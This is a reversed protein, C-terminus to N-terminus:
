ASNDHKNHKFVLAKSSGFNFLLGAISGSAVALVPVREFLSSGIVLVSFVGNNVAGGFANAGLYSFWEKFKNPSKKHCFAFRRNISWTVTVAVFFAVIQAPILSVHALGILTMMIGADVGFGIVGSLSFLIFQKITSNM